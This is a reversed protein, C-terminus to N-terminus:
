NKWSPVRDVTAAAVSGAAGTPFLHPPLSFLCPGRSCKQPPLVAGPWPKKVPSAASPFPEARRPLEPLSCLWGRIESARTQKEQEQCVEKWEREPVM